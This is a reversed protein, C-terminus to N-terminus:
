DKVIAEVVLSTGDLTLVKVKTGQEIIESSKYKWAQGNVKILDGDIVGERGVFSNTELDEPYFYNTAIWRISFFGIVCGTIFWVIQWSISADFFNTIATMLFGLAISGGVFATSFVEVILFVAVLLLLLHYKEM